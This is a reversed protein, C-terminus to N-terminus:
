RVLFLSSSQPFHHTTKEKSSWLASCFVGTGASRGFSKWLALHKKGLDVPEQPRETITHSLEQPCSCINDQPSIVQCLHHTWSGARNCVRQSRIQTPGLQAKERARCSVATLTYAQCAFLASALEAPLFASPAFSCKWWCHLTSYWFISCGAAISFVGKCRM